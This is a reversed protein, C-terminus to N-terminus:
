QAGFEGWVALVLTYMLFTKVVVQESKKCKLFLNPFYNLHPIEGFFFAISWIETM